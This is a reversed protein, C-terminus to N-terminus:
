DIGPKVIFYKKKGYYGLYYATDAFILTTYSGSNMEFSAEITDNIIAKGNYSCPLVSFYYHFEHGDIIKSAKLIEVAKEETIEWKDCKDIYDVYFNSKEDIVKEFSSIKVNVVKSFFNKKVPIDAKEIKLTDTMSENIASISDKKSVANNISKEDNGCGFVILSIIIILSRKIM